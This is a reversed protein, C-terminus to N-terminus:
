LYSRATLSFINSTRVLVKFKNPLSQVIIKISRDATLIDITTSLNYIEVGLTRRKIRRFCLKTLSFAPNVTLQVSNYTCDTSCTKYNNTTIITM